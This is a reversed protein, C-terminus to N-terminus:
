YGGGGGGSLGRQDEGRGELTQRVVERSKLPLFLNIIITSGKKPLPNSLIDM